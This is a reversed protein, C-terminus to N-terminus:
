LNRIKKWVSLVDERVIEQSYGISQSIIELDEKLPDAWLVKEGLLYETLRCTRQKQQRGLPIAIIRKDLSYQEINKIQIESALGFRFIAEIIFEKESECTILQVYTKMFIGQDLIQNTWIKRAGLKDLNYILEPIKDTDKIHSSIEIMSNAVPSTQTIKQCWMARIPPDNCIAFKTLVNDGRTSFNSVCIKLIAMILPDCTPGPWAHECIPIGLSLNLLINTFEQSENSFSLPPYTSTIAIPNLEQILICYENLQEKEEKKFTYENSKLLNFIKKFLIISTQKKIENSIAIKGYKGDNVVKRLQRLVMLLGQMTCGQSLDLHIFHNSMIINSFHVM